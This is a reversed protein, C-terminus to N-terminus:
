RNCGAPGAVPSLKRLRGCVENTHDHTSRETIPFEEACLTFWQLPVM